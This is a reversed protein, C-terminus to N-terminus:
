KCNPITSKVLAIESNQWGMKLLLDKVYDLTKAPPCFRHSSPVLIIKRHDGDKILNLVGAAVTKDGGALLVHNMDKPKIKDAESYSMKSVQLDCNSDISFKYAAKKMDFKKADDPLWTFQEILQQRSTIKIKNQEIWDQTFWKRMLAYSDDNRRTIFKEKGTCAAKLSGSFVLVLIVTILQRM